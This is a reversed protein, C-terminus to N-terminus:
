EGLRPVSTLQRYGQPIEPRDFGASGWEFELYEVEAVRQGTTGPAAGAPAVSLAVRTPPYSPPDYGFLLAEAGPAGVKAM